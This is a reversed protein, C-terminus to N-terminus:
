KELAEQLHDLMYREAEQQAPEIHPFPKVEGVTRGGRVLAHGNELLHTLQYHDSNYIIVAQYGKLTQRDYQWKWGKAYEGTRRPVQVTRLNQVTMKATAKEVDEITTGLEDQYEDLIGEIAKTLETPKLKTAM